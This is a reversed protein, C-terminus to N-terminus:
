DAIRDVITAVILGGVAANAIGGYVAILTMPGDEWWGPHLEYGYVHLAVFAGIGIAYGIACLLCGLLNDIAVLPTFALISPLLVVIICLAALIPASM